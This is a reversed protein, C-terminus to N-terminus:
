VVGPRFVCAGAPSPRAAPDHARAKPSGAPLELKKEM